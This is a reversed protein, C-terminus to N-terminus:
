FCLIAVDNQTKTYDHSKQPLGLLVWFPNAASQAAFGKQTKSRYLPM